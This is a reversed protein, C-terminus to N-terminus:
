KQVQYIKSQWNNQEDVVTASNVERFYQTLLNEIKLPSHYFSYISFKKNKFNLIPAKKQSILNFIFFGKYKVIRNVERFLDLPNKLHVVLFASIVIDFSNDPFPLESCDAQILLPSKSKIKKIMEGSIDVGFLHETKKKLQNFLRGDGCGLDLGLQGPPVLSMFKVRDFSDLWSYHKKYQNSYLDYGQRSSLIKM